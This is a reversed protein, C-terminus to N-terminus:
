RKEAAIPTILYITKLLRGQPTLRTCIIKQNKNWARRHTHTLLILKLLLLAAGYSLAFVLAPTSQLLFRVIVGAFIVLLEAVDLLLLAIGRITVERGQWLPRLMAVTGATM